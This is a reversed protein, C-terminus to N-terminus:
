AAAPMAPVPVSFTHEIRTFRSRLWGTVESDLRPELKHDLDQAQDLIAAQGYEKGMKVAQSRVRHVNDLESWSLPKGEGFVQCQAAWRKWGVSTSDRRIAQFWNSQRIKVPEKLGAVDLGFAAFDAGLDILSVSSRGSVTQGLDVGLKFSDVGAGALKADAFIEMAGAALVPLATGGSGVLVAAIAAAGAVALAAVAVVTLADSLDNLTEDLAKFSPDRVLAGIARFLDCADEIPKVAAHLVSVTAHEVSGLWHTNRHLWSGLSNRIGLHSARVLEDGAIQAAADLARRNDNARRRISDMQGQLSRQQGQLDALTRLAADLRHQAIAHASPDTAHSLSTRANAVTQGANRVSGELRSGQQQLAALENALRQAM